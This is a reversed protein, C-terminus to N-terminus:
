MYTLEGPILVNELYKSQPNKGSLEVFCGINSGAEDGTVFLRPGQPLICKSYWCDNSVM